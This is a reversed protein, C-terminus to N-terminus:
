KSSGVEALYIRALRTYEGAQLKDVVYELNSRAKEKNGTKIYLRGLDLYTKAEAIKLSSKNMKELVEIAEPLKGADEYAVALRSLVFHETYSNKSAFMKKALELVELAEANKGQSLLIDSVALTVPFAELSSSTKELLDKASKAFTPADIKNESYARMDGITFAHVLSQVQASQKSAYSRYGGWVFVAAIALIALSIWLNKYRLLLSGVETQQLVQDVPTIQQNM